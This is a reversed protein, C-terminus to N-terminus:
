VPTSFQYPGIAIRIKRIFPLKLPTHLFVAKGSERLDNRAKHALVPVLLGTYYLIRLRELRLVMRIVRSMTRFAGTTVAAARDNCGDRLILELLALSGTM